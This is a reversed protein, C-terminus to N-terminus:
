VSYIVTVSIAESTCLAVNTATFTPTHDHRYINSLGHTHAYSQVCYQGSAGGGSDGDLANAVNLGDTSGKASLETVGSPLNSLAGTIPNNTKDYMLKYFELTVSTGTRSIFSVYRRSTQCWCLIAGDAIPTAALVITARGSGDTTPTFNEMRGTYGAYSTM